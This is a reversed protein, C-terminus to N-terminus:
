KQYLQVSISQYDLSAFMELIVRFDPFAKVPSVVVLFICVCEAFINQQGLVFSTTEILIKTEPM